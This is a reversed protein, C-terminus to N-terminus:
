PYIKTLLESNLIHGPLILSDAPFGLKLQHFQNGTINIGTALYAKWVLETCYLKNDTKIDFAKDFPIRAKFYSLATQAAKVPCDATDSTMRCIAFRSAKESSLFERPTDCKVLEDGNEDPEGPVAHVIFPAGKILCVMGVHSYDTGPDNMLVITSVLSRGKRFVIDGEHLEPIVSVPVTTKMGSDRIHLQGTAEFLLLGITSLVLIIAPLLKNTM